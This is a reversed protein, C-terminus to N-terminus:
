STGFQFLLGVGIIILFVPWVVGWDLGLLFILAVTLILLGNVLSRRGKRTLRGHSRYSQWARNLSTLAPILIFVAWWNTVFSIDLITSLLFLGGLAILVVGMVWSNNERRERIAQSAQEEEKLEQIDDSM